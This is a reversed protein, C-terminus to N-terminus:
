CEKPVKDCIANQCQKEFFVPVQVIGVWRRCNNQRVAKDDGSAIERKIKIYPRGFLRKKKSFAKCVTFSVFLYIFYIFICAYTCVYTHTNVYICVYM